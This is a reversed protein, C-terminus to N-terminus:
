SCRAENLRIELELVRAQLREMELLVVMARKANVMGPQKGLDNALRIVAQAIMLETPM